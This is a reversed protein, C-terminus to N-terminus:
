SIRRPTGPEFRCPTIRLEMICCCESAVTAPSALTDRRGLECGSFALVCRRTNAGFNRQSQEQLLLNARQAQSTTYQQTGPKARDRM